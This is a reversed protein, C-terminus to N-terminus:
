STIAQLESNALRRPYYAIRSIHGNLYSLAGQVVATTGFGVRDVVPVTGSIDTGVAAGGASIAFDNVKYAVAQKTSTGYVYAGGSSIDPVQAVGGTRVLYRRTDDITREYSAICNAFTGDSIAAVIPFISTSSDFSISYEAYLTGESQNYWNSFNAGTMVAVDAARTVQSAVTPIYSTAFAGAELQAGWIFIGSTGDGVSAVTNNTNTMGVLVAGAATTLNCTWVASIRFWGNGVNSIAGNTTSQGNYAGAVTGSILDFRIGSNQGQSTWSTGGVQLYAYRWEGAKVYMTM